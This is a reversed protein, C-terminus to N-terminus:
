GRRGYVAIDVLATLSLLLLGVLVRADGLYVRTEVPFAITKDLAAVKFHHRKGMEPNSAIEVLDRRSRYRLMAGADWNDVGELGVVDMAVHVADGFIVPHCARKFLEPYMYEMYRGMLQEASEGPEAGEVPLPSDAMDLANLMLFQRGSDNEMFTRMRGVASPPAGWAQMREVHYEIEAPRLPGGFDTYWCVFAAYLLASALWLLKRRNM